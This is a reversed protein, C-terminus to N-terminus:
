SYILKLRFFAANTDTANAINLQLEAPYIRRVMQEFKMLDRECNFLVSVSLSVLLRFIGPCLCMFIYALHGNASLTPM